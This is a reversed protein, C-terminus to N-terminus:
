WLGGRNGATVQEHMTSSLPRLACRLWTNPTAQTTSNGTSSSRLLLYLHLRCLCDSNRVVLSAAVEATSQMSHLSLASLCTIVRICIVTIHNNLLVHCTCVSTSVSQLLRQASLPIILIITLIIHSLVYPHLKSRFCFSIFGSSQVVIPVSAQWRSKYTKFLYYDSSAIRIFTLIYTKADDLVRNQLIIKYMQTVQCQQVTNYIYM